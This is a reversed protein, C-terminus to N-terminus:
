RVGFHAVEVLCLSVVVLDLLQDGLIERLGLQQGVVRGPSLGIPLLLLLPLPLPLPLLLLSLLLLLLLLLAAWV